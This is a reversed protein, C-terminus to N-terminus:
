IEYKYEEKLIAFWMLDKFENNYFIHKKFEGEYKFGFKKYFKVARTNQSYVNLYIRELKLKNFAMDLIEATAIKAVETGIAQRRLVIAYEGNRDIYNINKLSITGMYEDNENVIALNIDRDNCSNEIFKLIEDEKKNNFNTRFNSTIDEDQMWEKMYIYDKKELKRLAM